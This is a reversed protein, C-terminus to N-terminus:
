AQKVLKSMANVMGSHSSEHMTNLELLDGITDAKAFNEKNAVPENIQGAFTERVLHTQKAFLDLLEEWAPAETTWDAPKTGPGFFTKYEAPVEGSKGSFGFLIMDTVVMIHGLQWYINNNFGTPVISRQEPTLEATYGLISKRTREFLGFIFLDSMIIRRIYFYLRIEM